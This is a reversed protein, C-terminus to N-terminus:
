PAARLGIPLNPLAMWYLPAPQRQGHASWGRGHELRAVIVPQSLHAPDYCVVLDVGSPPAIEALKHWYRPHMPIREAMKAMDDSLRYPDSTIASSPM